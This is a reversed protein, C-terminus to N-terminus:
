GCLWMSLSCKTYLDLKVFNRSLHNRLSTGATAMLTYFKVDFCILLSEINPNKEQIRFVCKYWWKFKIAANKDPANMNVGENTWYKSSESAAADKVPRLSKQENFYILMIFNKLRSPHLTTM